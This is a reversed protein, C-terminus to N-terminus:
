LYYIDTVCSNRQLGLRRLQAFRPHVSLLSSGPQEVICGVGRCVALLLLLAVRSAIENATKVSQQEVRGLPQQASRGSLGRNLFVWSSCPICAFVLGGHKVRLILSLARLWGPVTLIDEAEGGSERDYSAVALSAEEFATSLARKGSFLEVMHLDRQLNRTALLWAVAALLVPPAGARQLWTTTRRSLAM